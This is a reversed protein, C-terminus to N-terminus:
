APKVKRPCRALVEAVTLGAQDAVTGYARLVCAEWKADSEAVWKATRAKEANADRVTDRWAFEARVWPDKKPLEPGYVHILSGRAVAAAHVGCLAVTRGGETPHETKAPNGCRPFRPSRTGESVSADCGRKSHKAAM